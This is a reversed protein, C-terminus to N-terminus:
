LSMPLILDNIGRKRLRSREDHCWIVCKWGGAEFYIIMESWFFIFTLSNVYYTGVCFCCLFYNMSKLLIAVSKLLAMPMIPKQDSLCSDVEGWLMCILGLFIRLLILNNYGSEWTDPIRM